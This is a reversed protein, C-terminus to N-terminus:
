NSIAIINDSSPCLEKLVCRDCLPKRKCIARGHDIVLTTFKVWHDKPVIKMLEREIKIANKTNVFGWRIALRTVHTDVTIGSDPIGFANGMVVNATKRGVGALSILEKMTSPVEGNFNETLSKAMRELSKAKNNYLGLTKIYPKIEDATAESMSIADPYKAFLAPLVLNVAKDTTQASLITAVLLEFPNNFDLSPKTDPYEKILENVIKEMRQSASM